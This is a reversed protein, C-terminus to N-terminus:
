DEEGGSERAFEALMEAELGDDELDDAGEAAEAAGKQEVAEDGQSAGAPARAGEDSATADPSPLGSSKDAASTVNNLSTTREIAKKKRKQLRSGSAGQDGQDDDALDARIDGERKRKRKRTPASNPPKTGNASSESGSVSDEAGTVIDVDGADDDNDTENLFDDMEADM